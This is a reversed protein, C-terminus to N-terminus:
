IFGRHTDAILWTLPCIGADGLTPRQQSPLVVVCVCMPSMPCMCRLSVCVRPVGASHCDYACTCGYWVWINVHLYVHPAHVCGSMCAHEGAVDVSVRASSCTYPAWFVGIAWLCISSRPAPLCPGVLAVRLHAHSLCTLMHARCVLWLCMCLPTLRLAHQCSFAGQHLRPASCPGQALGHHSLRM